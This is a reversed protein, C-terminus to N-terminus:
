RINSDGIFPSYCILPNSSYINENRDILVNLIYHDLPLNFYKENLISKILLLATSKDIIYSHATRDYNSDNLIENFSSDVNKYNYINGSFNSNTFNDYFRGGIYFIGNYNYNDTIDNFTNLFTGNFCVDDEFILYYNTEKDNILNYWLFFHSFFCGIEGNNLENNNKIFTEIVVEKLDKIKNKKMSIDKGNIAKFVNVNRLPCKIFFDNLRDPRNELNIVFSKM